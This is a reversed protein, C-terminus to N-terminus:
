VLLPVARICICVGKLVVATLRGVAAADLPTLRLERTTDDERKKAVRVANLADQEVCHKWSFEVGNVEAEPGLPIDAMFVGSVESGGAYEDCEVIWWIRRAMDM